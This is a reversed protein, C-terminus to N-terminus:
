RVEGQGLTLQKIGPMGLERKIKKRREGERKKKKKLEEREREREREPARWSCSFPLLIGTLPAPLTRMVSMPGLLLSARMQTEEREPEGAVLQYKM